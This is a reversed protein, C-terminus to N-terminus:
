GKQHPISERSKEICCDEKSRILFISRIFEIKKEVDCLDNGVVTCHGMKRQPKTSKKGYLHLHAGSVNLVEKVGSYAVEGVGDLGLLNLMIGSQITETNGCPFGLAIRMYQEFQSTQSCEITHHGSNHVRPAIENVLVVGKEDLFLEVAYMGTGEFAEILKKGIFSIQDLVSEALGEAFWVTDVIHTKPDFSQEIVPYQFTTGFRDRGIILSFEKQINVCEEIVSDTDFMHECDDLGEIKKVGGGDYGDLCTKQICPFFLRERDKKGEILIFDVTPINHSKLFQKQKSKDQIVEIYRPQAIIRKGLTELKKLADVNVHEFELILTDCAEGFRLVDDYSKSSGVVVEDCLLSCPCDKSSDLVRLFEQQRLPLFAEIMMKGLQGGTIFGITQKPNYFDSSPPM